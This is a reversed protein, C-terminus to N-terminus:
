LMVHCVMNEVVQLIEIEVLSALINEPLTGLVHAIWVKITSPM